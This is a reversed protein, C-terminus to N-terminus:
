VFCLRAENQTSFVKISVIVYVGGFCVKGKTLFEVQEEEYELGDQDDM